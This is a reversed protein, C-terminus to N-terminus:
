KIEWQELLTGMKGFSGGWLEEKVEPYEKRVGRASVAKLIGVVQAISYKPPFSIFIHIHDKAVEMEEIEFGHYDAIEQFLEKVRKRVEGRLV